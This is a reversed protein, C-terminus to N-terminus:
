HGYNFALINRSNIINFIQGDINDLVAKDKIIVNNAIDFFKCNYTATMDELNVGNNQCEKGCLNM